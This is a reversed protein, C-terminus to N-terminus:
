IFSYILIESSQTIIALSQDHASLKWVHYGLDREALIENLEASLRILRGCRKADNDCVAALVTGDPCVTYASVAMGAPLIEGDDTQTAYTQVFGSLDAGQLVAGHTDFVFARAEFVYGALVREDALAVLHVSSWYNVSSERDSLPIDPVFHRILGGDHGRVVVGGTEARTAYGSVVLQSGVTVLNYPVLSENTPISKLLRDHEYCHLQARTADAVWFGRPVAAIAELKGLGDVKGIEALVSGNLDFATIFSAGKQLVLLRDDSDFVVDTPEALSHGLRKSIRAIPADAIISADLRTCWWALALL